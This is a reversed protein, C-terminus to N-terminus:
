TRTVYPDTHTLLLVLIYRSIYVIAPLGIRFGSRVNCVVGNMEQKVNVAITLCEDPFRGLHLTKNVDESQDFQPADM